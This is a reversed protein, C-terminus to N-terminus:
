VWISLRVCRCWFLLFFNWNTSYHFRLTLCLSLSFIIYISVVTPSLVLLFSLFHCRFCLALFMLSFELFHTQRLSFIYFCSFNLFLIQLLLVSFASYCYFIVWVFIKLALWCFGWLYLIRWFLLDCALQFFFTFWLSFWFSFAWEFFRWHSLCLSFLWSYLQTWLLRCSEFTVGLSPFIHHRRQRRRSLLLLCVCSKIVIYDVQSLFTSSLFSLADVWSSILVDFLSLQRESSPSLILYSRSTFLSILVFIYWSLPDVLGRQSKPYKYTWRRIMREDKFTDEAWRDVRVFTVQIVETSLSGTSLQDKVFLHLGM